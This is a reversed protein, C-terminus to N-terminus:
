QARCLLSWHHRLEPGAGIDYLDYNSGSTSEAAGKVAQGAATNRRRTGPRTRAPTMQPPAPQTQQLGLQQQQGLQMQVQEHQFFTQSQSKLQQTPAQQTQFEQRPTNQANNNNPDHFQNGSPPIYHFGAM